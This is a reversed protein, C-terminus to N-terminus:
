DVPLHEFEEDTMMFMKFEINISESDEDFQDLSIMEEIKQPAPIFADVSEEWYFLRKRKM